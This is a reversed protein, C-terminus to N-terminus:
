APRSWTRRSGAPWTVARSRRDVGHRWGGEAPIRGAVQLRRPRQLGHRHGHRVAPHSELALAVEGTEVRFGHIKAQGDRRGLFQVNGDPLFRGLDGTRYIVGSGSAPVPRAPVERREPGAAPPLWHGRWRGRPIDGRDVGVPVPQLGADLIYLYDNAIPRGIPISEERDAVEKVHYWTSFTTNETPGYVNILRGHLGNELVAKAPGPDLVDGGVLLDRVRRFSGPSAAAMVNFLPTPMFLVDIHCEDIKAELKAPSLATDRDIIVLTAGNLLPVGSMSRPWTSPPARCTPCSM